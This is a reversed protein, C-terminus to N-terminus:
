PGEETNKTGSQSQWYAFTEAQVGDIFRRAEPGEWPGSYGRPKAGGAVWWGQGPIGDSQRVVLVALEPEGRAEAEEDVTGLIACLARMKPRSFPYGLRELLESYTLAVGAQAAAVLHARIEAPDALGPM